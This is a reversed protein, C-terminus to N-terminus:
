FQVVDRHGIYRQAPRHDEIDILLGLRKAAKNQHIAHGVGGHAGSQDPM